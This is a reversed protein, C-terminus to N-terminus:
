IKACFKSIMASCITTLTGLVGLAWRRCKPKVVNVCQRWASAFPPHIETKVKGLKAAMAELAALDLSDLAKLAAAHREVPSIALVVLSGPALCSLDVQVRGSGGQVVHDIFKLFVFVYFYCCHWCFVAPDREGEWIAEREM